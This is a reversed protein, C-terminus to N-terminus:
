YIGAYHMAYLSSCPKWTSGRKGTGTEMEISFNMGDLREVPEIGNEEQIARTNELISDEDLLLNNGIAGIENFLGAQTGRVAEGRLVSSFGEVDNPQGEFVGAIANIARLQFNQSSEYKIKMVEVEVAM